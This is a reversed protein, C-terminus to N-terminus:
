FEETRGIPVIRSVQCLAPIDIAPLDLGIQTARTQFLHNRTEDTFHHDMKDWASAAMGATCQTFYDGQLLDFPHFWLNRLLKAGARSNDQNRLALVPPIISHLRFSAAVFESSAAPHAMINYGNYRGKKLLSLGFTGMLTPGLFSPIYEQFSILCVQSM